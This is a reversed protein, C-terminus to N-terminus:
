AGIANLVQSMRGYAEQWNPLSGAVAAAGAALSELVAPENLVRALAARLLDVNGPPVLLGAHSGVLEAIAGVPTSIVPLGHALAEAVAMGYGEFLTPLVFIDAAGYLRLLRAADVEGALTVREQMDLRQLQARLREVTAPSRTLGGVCTLHWPSSALPALAEFLLEHGKRAILTAVCLMQLQEGRRHRARSTADTGPEVM